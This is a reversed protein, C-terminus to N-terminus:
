ESMQLKRARELHMAVHQRTETLHARVEPSSAAPLLKGDIMQLAEGHDKVMAAIYAAEYATGSKQGLAARERAKKAKMADVEPARAPTGLARTKAQNATHEKDMMEAYVLVPASVEKERAQRAAAIEHENVGSLMALALGDGGNAMDSGTMDGRASSRDASTNMDSSMGSAASGSMATPGSADSRSGDSACGSILAITLLSAFPMSTKM